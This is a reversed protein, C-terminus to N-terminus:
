SATDSGTDVDDPISNNPKNVSLQQLLLLSQTLLLREQEQRNLYMQYNMESLLIAIEKQVTAASASNIKQIWQDSSQKDPDFQRWTAAKFENLAESTTSSTSGDSSSSTQAMRKGLIHYLNGIPVSAKAAYVRLGLLYKALGVKANITNTADVSSSYNGDSDTPPYALSYLKSYDAQTMSPLPMVAETAYRIFDQAQEIQSKAPLGNGGQEENSKTSYLLPAILTNGNLQSLFKSNNEYSYYDYEGPLLGDKTVDQLVTTMVKDVSLCDESSSSDSCNSWDPTGIINLVYQSVPDQQYNKQDFNEVASVGSAAGPSAYDQFVVNAQDNLSDYSTNETFTKFISNVPIAAFFTYLNQQGTSVISMTYDLITDFAAPGDQDVDYGIYLGLNKLYRATASDEPEPNNDSTTGLPNPNYQPEAFGVLSTALATIFVATRLKRM